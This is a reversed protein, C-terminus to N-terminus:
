KTNHFVKTGKKDGTDDTNIFGPQGMHYQSNNASKNWGRLMGAVEEEGQSNTMTEEQLKSFHQWLHKTLGPRGTLAPTLPLIISKLAPNSLPTVQNKSSVSQCESCHHTLTVHISLRWFSKACWLRTRVTRHLDRSPWLAEQMIAVAKYPWIQRLSRTVAKHSNTTGSM